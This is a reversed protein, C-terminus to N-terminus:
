QPLGVRRLVDKFRPDSRLNDWFADVKLGPLATERDQYSKELWFFARDKEGLWAYAMAPQWRDIRKDGAALEEL